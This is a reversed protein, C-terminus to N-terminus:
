TFSDALCYFYSSHDVLEGFIWKEESGGGGKVKSIGLAGPAGMVSASLLFPPSLGMEIFAALVSGSITSFGGTM